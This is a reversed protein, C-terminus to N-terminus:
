TVRLDSTWEDYRRLRGLLEAYTAFPM